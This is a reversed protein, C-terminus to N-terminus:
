ALLLPILSRVDDVKELRGVMSVIKDVNGSPLPKGGYSVYDQFCEQYEKSTLPNGPSGRPEDVVKQYIDGKMTTVKMDTKLHIELKGELAPDPAVHIKKILEM